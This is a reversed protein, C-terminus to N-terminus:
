KKYRENLINKLLDYDEIYFIDIPDALNVLLQGLRLDPQNIWVKELHHLIPKIRRKSRRPCNPIMSAIEAILKRLKRM